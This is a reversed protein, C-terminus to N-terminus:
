FVSLSRPTLQTHTTHYGHASTQRDTYTNVATFITIIRWHYLSSLFLLVILIILIIITILLITIYAMPQHPDEHVGGSSVNKPIKM